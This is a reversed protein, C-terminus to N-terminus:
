PDEAEAAGAREIPVSRTRSRPDALPLEVRLIGDSYTARAEDAVVEAGLEITRRFPGHEIELQQYVRGEADAARRVGTLTLTRGHIELGLDRADIGALEAHVIARPPDEAYFVDVAPSFGSRPSALGATGLMDGFLEDMERRMREFNAFLDREGPM